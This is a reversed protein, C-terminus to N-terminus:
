LESAYDPHILALYRREHLTVPETTPSGHWRLQFENGNVGVIQAEWWGEFEGDDDYSAGLVVTGIKLSAWAAAPNANAVPATAAPLAATATPAQPTDAPKAASAPAPNKAAAALAELKDIIEQSTPPLSFQGQPNLLGEPLTKALEHQEFTTAALWKLGFKAATAKAPEAVPPGFWGARDPGTGAIRGFVILVRPKPAAASPTRQSNM